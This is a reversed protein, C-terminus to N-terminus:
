RKPYRQCQVWAIIEPGNLPYKAMRRLKATNSKHKFEANEKELFHDCEEINSNFEQM